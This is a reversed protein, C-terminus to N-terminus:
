SKSVRSVAQEVQAQRRANHDLRYTGAHRDRLTYTLTGYGLQDVRCLLDVGVGAVDGVERRGDAVEDVALCAQENLWHICAAPKKWIATQWAGRAV